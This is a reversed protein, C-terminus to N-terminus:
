PQTALAVNGSTKSVAGPAVCTGDQLAARGLSGQGVSVDHHGGM